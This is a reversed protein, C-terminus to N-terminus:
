NVDRRPLVSIVYEATPPLLVACNEARLAAAIERKDGRWTLFVPGRAWGARDFVNERVAVFKARNEAPRYGAKALRDLAAGIREIDPRRDVPSDAVPRTAVLVRLASVALCRFCGTRSGGGPCPRGHGCRHAYLRGDKKRRVDIECIPCIM